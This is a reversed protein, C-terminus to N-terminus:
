STGGVRLRRLIDWYAGRAGAKIANELTENANYNYDTEDASGGLFFRPDHRLRAHLERGYDEGLAASLYFVPRAFGENREVEGVLNANDRSLGEKAVIGALETLPYIRLGIAVGVADPEIEHMVRITEDATERTEGPGGLLLDFMSTIGSARCLAAVRKIDDATFDRRLRRLMGDCGSDTGFNIGVCGARRMAQALEATMAGPSCYAYWRVREGLGRRIFEQCVALAHDPPLNFESDCTHLCDVGQALLSEVEDAVLAPSRVRYTRGKAVPDACYICRGACGRKTEFGGQGGERFYRANDIFSRPAATGPLASHAPSIARREDGAPGRVLGPISDLGDGREVATALAALAIEGDGVIGFWGPFQALVAHPMISFGVGGLVRTANGAAGELVHALQAIEALFSQRSACYCDDTNRLTVGVVHPEPGRSLRTKVAAEWDEEFCLDLVDVAHGLADLHGAIYDLGIPAVPPRMLNSNVLLVRAM